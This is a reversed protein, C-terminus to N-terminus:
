RDGGEQGVAEAEEENRGRDRELMAESRLDLPFPTHGFGVRLPLAVEGKEDIDHDAFSSINATEVAPSEEDLSLVHAFPPYALELTFTTEWDGSPGQRLVRAGGNFRAMPGCYLSLYFEYNSPLGVWKPDQAFAQLDLHLPPFGPAAVALIM